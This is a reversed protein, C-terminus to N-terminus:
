DNDKKQYIRIWDFRTEYTEDLNAKIGYVGHMISQNLLLYFPTDFTWERKAKEEDGKPKHHTATTKGDIYWRIYDPTWEVGYIHWKKGNARHMFSNKIGHRAHKTTFDTHFAHRANGDNGVMEVIDIEGYPPVFGKGWQRGMWIAPFSGPKLNTRMRVEIKGYKVTLRDKSWVAGTLMAATDQLRNKNPIARCVLHGKEVTTVRPDNSIWRSWMSNGRPPISWHTTDIHRGDFQDEFVLEYGDADEEYPHAPAGNANLLICAALVALTLAIAARYRKM